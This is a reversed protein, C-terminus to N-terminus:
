VNLQGTMKNHVVNLKGRVNRLNMKTFPTCIKKKSTEKLVVKNRMFYLIKVMNYFQKKSMLM